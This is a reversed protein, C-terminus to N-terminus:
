AYWKGVKDWAAAAKTYGLARLQEVILEDARSHAGEYDGHGCESAIQAALEDDTKM